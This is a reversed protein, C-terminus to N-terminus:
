NYYPIVNKIILNQVDKWSKFYDNLQHSELLQAQTVKIPEYEKLRQIFKKFNENEKLGIVFNKLYKVSDACTIDIELGLVMLSCEEIRKNLSSILDTGEWAYSKIANLLVLEKNRELMLTKSVM